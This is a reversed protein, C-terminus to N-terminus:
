RTAAPLTARWVPACVLLLVVFGLRRAPALAAAAFATFPGLLSLAVSVMADIQLEKVALLELLILALVLM